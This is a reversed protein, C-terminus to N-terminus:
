ASAARLSSYSANNSSRSDMSESVEGAVEVVVEAVGKASVVVVVEEEM